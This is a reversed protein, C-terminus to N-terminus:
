DQQAADDAVLFGILTDKGGRKSLKAEDKRGENRSDIEAKLQDIDLGAYAGEDGDGDGDAAGSKLSEVEQRLAENEEALEAARTQLEELRASAQAAFQQVEPSDMVNVSAQVSGGQEGGELGDWLAPNTVKRVLEDTAETGAPYVVGDVVVSGNLVASM